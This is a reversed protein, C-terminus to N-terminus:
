RGDGIARANVGPLLSPMEGSEYIDKIQPRYHDSVTQGNPLIVGALFEDEFTTIGSEIAELKAKVILLLARWRRRGEQEFANRAAGASRAKGTRSHTFADDREDPMPLHFRVRRENMEFGIMIQRGQWGYAFGDAGYRILLRELEARSRDAPVDTRAAYRESM